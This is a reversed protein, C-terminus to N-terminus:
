VASIPLNKIAMSVPSLMIKQSNIGNIQKHFPYFLILILTAFNNM